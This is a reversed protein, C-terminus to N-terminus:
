FGGQLIDARPDGHELGDAVRLRVGADRRQRRIHLRPERAHVRHDGVGPHYRPVHLAGVPRIQGHAQEFVAVPRAHEVDIQQAGPPDRAGEQRQQAVRGVARLREDARGTQRRVRDVRADAGNRVIHALRSTIAQNLMNRIVMQLRIPNMRLYQMQHLTVQVTPLHVSSPNPIRQMRARHQRRLRLIM